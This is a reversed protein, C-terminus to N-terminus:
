ADYSGYRGYRGYRRYTPTDFGFVTVGTQPAQMEKLLSIADERAAYDPTQGFATACAVAVITAFPDFYAYEINEIDSIYVVKLAALQDQQALIQREVKQTEEASPEDNAGIANLKELVERVLENKTPM